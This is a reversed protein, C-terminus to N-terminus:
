AISVGEAADVSWLSLSAVVEDLNRSFGVRLVAGPSLVCGRDLADETGAPEAVIQQYIQEAAAYNGRKVYTEAQQLDFGIDALCKGALGGCVFVVALVFLISLKRRPIIRVDWFHSSLNANERSRPPSGCCPRSSDSVKM